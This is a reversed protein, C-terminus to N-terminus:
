NWTDYSSRTLDDRFANWAILGAVALVAGLGCVAAMVWFVIRLGTALGPAVDPSYWRGDSALWWGPGQSTDSMDRGGTPVARRPAPGYRRCRHPHGQVLVETTEGDAAPAPRWAPPIIWCRFRTVM